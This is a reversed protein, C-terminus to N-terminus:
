QCGGNADPGFSQVEVTKKVRIRPRSSRRPNNGKEIHIEVVGFGTGAIIEEGASLLQQLKEIGYVAQLRSLLRTPSIVEQGLYSARTETM